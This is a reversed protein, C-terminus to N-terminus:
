VAPAFPSAIVHKTAVTYHGSEALPSAAANAAASQATGDTIQRRSKEDLMEGTLESWGCLENPTVGLAEAIRWVKDIGPTMSGNVYASVTADNIGCQDALQGQTMGRATMLLKMRRGLMSEDYNM